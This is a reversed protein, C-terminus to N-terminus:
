LASAGLLLSSQLLVPSRVRCASVDMTDIVESVELDAMALARDASEKDGMTVLAWSTNNGDSDVRLRVSARDFHGFQQFVARLAPESSLAFATSNDARYLGGINGVHLTRLSDSEASRIVPAAMARAAFEVNRPRSNVAALQERLEM